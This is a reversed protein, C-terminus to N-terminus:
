CDALTWIPRFVWGSAKQNHHQAKTVATTDLPAAADVVRGGFIPVLNVLM